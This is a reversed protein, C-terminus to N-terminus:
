VGFIPNAALLGWLDGVDDPVMREYVLCAALFVHGLLEEEFDLGDM